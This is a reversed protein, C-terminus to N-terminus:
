AIVVVNPNTITARLYKAINDVAEIQWAGGDAEFLAAEADENVRLTFNSEPQEVESFTRMPKLPVPNKFTVNTAMSVGREVTIVQSVGDDTTNCSQQKTMSKVVSFLTNRADTEIFRSLLMTTFTEADMYVGFRTGPLNAKTGAIVHRKKEHESPQSLLRVVTPSAVQLILTKDDPIQGETNENIYDVLGQLTFFELTDPVDDDCKVIKPMAIWQKRDVDWRHTVGDFEETMQALEHLERVRDAYDEAHSKGEEILYEALNKLNENNTDPMKENREPRM